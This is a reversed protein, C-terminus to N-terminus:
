VRRLAMRLTGTFIPGNWIRIMASTIRTSNPRPRILSIIPSKPLPTFLKRWPRLSSSLGAAGGCRISPGLWSALGAESAAALGWDALSVLARQGGSKPGRGHKVDARSFEQEDDDHRHDHDARFVQRQRQAGRAPPDALDSFDGTMEAGAEIRHDALGLHLLHLLLPALLVFLDHALMGLARRRSHLLGSGIRGTRDRRW